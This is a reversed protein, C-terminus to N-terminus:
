KFYKNFLLIITENYADFEGSEGPEYENELKLTFREKKGNEKSIFYYIMNVPKESQCVFQDLKFRNCGNLWESEFEENASACYIIGKHNIFFSTMRIVENITREKYEGLEILKQEIKKLLLM